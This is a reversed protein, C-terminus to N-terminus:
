TYGELFRKRERMKAYGYEMEERTDINELEQEEPTLQELRPVGQNRVNTGYDIGPGFPNEEVGEEMFDSELYHWLLWLFARAGSESSLDIATVLDFFDRTPPFHLETIRASYQTLVFILNIPNTRPITKDKVKNLSFPELRDETAKNLMM